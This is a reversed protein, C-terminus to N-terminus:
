DPNLEIRMDEIIKCLLYHDYVFKEEEDLIENESLTRIAEYCAIYKKFIRKWVENM